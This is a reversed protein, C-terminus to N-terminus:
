ARDKMPKIPVAVGFKRSAMMMMYTTYTFVPSTYRPSNLVSISCFPMRHSYTGSNRPRHRIGSITMPVEPVQPMMRVTRAWISSSCARCYVRVARALPQESAVM